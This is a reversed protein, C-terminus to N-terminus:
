LVKEFDKVTLPRMEMTDKMAMLQETPIERIPAMAAEKVIFNLDACSYGETLKM